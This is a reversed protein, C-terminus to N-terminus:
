DQLIKIINPFKTFAQKSVFHSQRFFEKPIVKGALVDQLLEFSNCDTLSLACDCGELNYLVLTPHSFVNMKAAMEQDQKFSQITFSAHRDQKFMEVDLQCQKAIQYILEDCYPANQNILQEQMALLFARGRKQSQFLAAKYDLAFRYLQKAVLKRAKLDTLDLGQRKMVLSITKLSLLPIFRFNIKDESQAVLKLINKEAEYCVGGLPNIFLYMELVIIGGLYYVIKM